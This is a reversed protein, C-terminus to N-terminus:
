ASDSVVPSEVPHGNTGQREHLDVSILRSLGIEEMTVGYLVDAIEMTRKNHTIVIFQTQSSMNTLAQTFRRTNEEDLPADIEDLLCFPSPHILFTAFLLSIATLAKEGGSLLSISRPKKGPPQAVMEIGSELPRSEDLLILEAKGGGFFSVFVEKFKENLLYFTDTFLSQTTKNIKAIAQRLSEMSTTLDTEQSTLFQYRSELERYEEIAGINVPGMEDVARRLAASRERAQDLSIEEGEPSAPPAPRTEAIETQYNMFITERVKEMTMQAEIKRLAREQLSKQTQDLQARCQQIEQDVQQLQALIEAHAETKERIRANLAEREVAGLQIFSTTEAEEGEAARRKEQLSAVLREKEQFRQVLEEKARVVRSRKELLHRHREKLSATEMKLRVVEEKVIGLSQRLAEVQEQQQTIAAEKEEKMRQAETVQNRETEEQRLLEIEEKTGEEQEFLVTQLANQLRDIETLSASHDKLDHLHQIEIARIEGGLAEIEQRTTQLLAQNEGIKEEQRRMEEQLHAMQDSLAKIERKQELLGTEGREGGTVAGSRDLVEGRLTVYVAAPSLEWQEFAVDLDRVLVVDCLLAQTLAEYGDRHGVLDLARGIVGEQGTETSSLPSQTRPQRPFFTGRGLQAERLHEIGQRIEAAGDVVIGRLRSELVAEIAKEYPAPVEIFDAVMGHLGQLQTLLNETGPGLLGRYFGERSALQAALVGWEEKVQSLRATGAQLTAETEKLQTAAAAQAAQKESLQRKMEGLQAKLQGSAAETEEKKRQVEELEQAGRGKRKMLEDKRLQLHVLNNKAQTLRSALEFLYGKEQELRAIEETLAAEIRNSEEQRETLHREREPLTEEIQEQEQDLAQDEAQLATEAQRIEAIEQLNRTETETWERRQARITEIRGELRQIKAETEFIQTKLQGLAQEQETLSLKIESQRLDLGSRQNEQASATEQLSREEQELAERTGSWQDWEARAVFFDLSKLEERIKQFKEAKRAQRDLSNIQRKIEGIIDRVRTLNQETAELKRLAEAKRLRYKAIGAAEEVIERRQLPSASILDDVKGQEIITHARYGAGTDILLDRIDKLRCPTKNILYESEGSRFLRRSVTIESYPAYPEPLAGNIDGFTLSVESMGLPKRHETGNFIVDEMREGRLNKASQEGLVWLISDAINSKGCGNPGVVANIGPQFTVVTKDFFSKFGFIELKKLRM